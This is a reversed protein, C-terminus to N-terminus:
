SPTYGFTSTCSAPIASPGLECGFGDASGSGSCGTCSVDNQGAVKVCKGDGCSPDSTCFCGQGQASCAGGPANCGGKACSWTEPSLPPAADCPSGECVESAEPSRCSADDCTAAPADPATAADREPAPKGADSCDACGASYEELGAIQACATVAVGFGGAIVVRIGRRGM